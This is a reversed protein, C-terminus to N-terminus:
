KKKPYCCSECYLLNNEKNFYKYKEKHYICIRGICSHDIEQIDRKEKLMMLCNDCVLNGPYFYNINKSIKLCFDKSCKLTYNQEIRQDLDFHNVFTTKCCSFKVKLRHIFEIYPINLCIECILAKMKLKFLIWFSSKPLLYFFEPNGSLM